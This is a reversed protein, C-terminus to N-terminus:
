GIIVEDGYNDINGDDIEYRNDGDRVTVIADSDARSELFFILECVTM